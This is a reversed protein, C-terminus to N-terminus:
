SSRGDNTLDVDSELIPEGQHISRVARRGLMDELRDPAMGGAPRRSGVNGSTVLEGTDIDRLARLSRRFQLSARENDSPGYRVSGLASHAENVSRVLDRLQDPELSFPADPGGLSRDLIFHKEILCAGLATAVVASTSNTTHDSLGVPMSWRSKMDLITTLDMESPSAPYTSNCRLLVVNTNGEDGAASIAADVEATSAMGTSIVLPLGSSAAHRILPLDVLEFSAIKIAEVGNAVLFDVADVGFPSSFWSVGARSAEEVLAITWEWPMAAEVYLDHLTRNEWPSGSAVRLDPHDGKVTLGDPTFHQFKVADVGCEAAVRISELAVELDHRHNASLEAVVLPPGSGDLDRGFLRVIDGCGPIRPPRGM